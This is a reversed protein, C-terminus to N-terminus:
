GVYGGIFNTWPTATITNAVTHPCVCKSIDQIFSQKIILQHHLRCRIHCCCQASLIFIQSIGHHYFPMMQIDQIKSISIVKPAITTVLLLLFMLMIYILTFGIIPYRTRANVNCIQIEVQLRSSSEKCLYWIFRAIVIANLKNSKTANTLLQQCRFGFIYLCTQLYWRKEANCDPTKFLIILKSYM